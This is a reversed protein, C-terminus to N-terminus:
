KVAKPMNRRGGHFSSDQVIPQLCGKCLGLLFMTKTYFMTHTSLVTKHHKTYFLYFLEKHLLHNPRLFMPKTWVVTWTLVLAHTYVLTKSFAMNFVAKSFAMNLFTIHTFPTRCLLWHILYQINSAVSCVSPHCVCCFFPFLWRFSLLIHLVLGTNLSAHTSNLGACRLYIFAFRLHLLAVRPPLPCPPATPELYVFCFDAGLPFNQCSLSLVSLVVVFLCSGCSM